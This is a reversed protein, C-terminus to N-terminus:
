PDWPMINVRGPYRTGGPLPAWTKVCVRGLWGMLQQEVPFLIVLVGVDGRSAVDSIIGLREGNLAPLHFKYLKGPSFNKEVTFCLRRTPSTELSCLRTAGRTWNGGRGVCASLKM